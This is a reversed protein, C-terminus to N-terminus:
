KKRYIYEDLPVWKGTPLQEENLIRYEANSRKELTQRLTVTEGLLELPPGQFVLRNNEWQTAMMIGATGSDDLTLSIWKKSIPNYTLFGQDSPSEANYSDTLSLWTGNLVAQVVGHGKSIQEPTTETAFVRATIEWSGMMWKLDALEAAPKGIQQALVPNAALKAAVREYFSAGAQPPRAPAPQTKQDSRAPDGPTQAQLPVAQSHILFLSTVIVPFILFRRPTAIRTVIHKIRFSFVVIGGLTM